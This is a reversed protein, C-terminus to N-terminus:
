ERAGVGLDIEVPPVFRRAGIQIGVIEADAPGAVQESGNRACILEAAVTPVGELNIQISFEDGAM